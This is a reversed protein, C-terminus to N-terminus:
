LSHARIPMQESKGHWIVDEETLHAMNMAARLAKLTEARTNPVTATWYDNHRFGPPTGIRLEVDTVARGFKPAAPGSVIDGQVIWRFPVYINTWVTAAFPAAHHPRRHPSANPKYTFVPTGKEDEFTPPATPLERLSKRAAFADPTDALLADAKSLPSGLTVLDSVLWLPDDADASIKAFYARQAQRYAIRAQGVQDASAAALTRAAEEVTALAAATAPDAHAAVQAGHSLRLWLFHVIDYAVVSGLSHGVIIIRDYKKKAALAELLAVGESRITQRIAVNNPSPDLYRAADGIKPLVKAPFLWGILAVLAGVLAAAWGPLGFPLGWGPALWLLFVLVAAALLILAFRWLGVLEAPVDGRGRLFVRQAWSIVIGTTHGQMHHAWYFEFFDMRKPPTASSERTTIRRLEFSGSVFDPKSFIGARSPHVIGPDDSWVAHVFGRLTEMPRQEGMGHIMVIATKKSM